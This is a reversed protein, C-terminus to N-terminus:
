MLFIHNKKFFDLRKKTYSTPDSTFGNTYCDTLQTGFSLFSMYIHIYQAAQFTQM